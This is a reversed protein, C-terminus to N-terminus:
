RGGEAVASRRALAAKIEALHDLVLFMVRFGVYIQFAWNVYPILALVVWLPRNANIRPALFYMGIAYCVPIIGFSFALGVWWMTTQDQQFDFPIM